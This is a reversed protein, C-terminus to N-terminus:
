KINYTTTCHVKCDIIKPVRSLVQLVITMTLTSYLAAICLNDCNYAVCISTGLIFFYTVYNLGVNGPLAKRICTCKSVMVILYTHIRGSKTM